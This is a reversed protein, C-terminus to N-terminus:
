RQCNQLPLIADLTERLLVCAWPSLLRRNGAPPCPCLQVNTHQPELGRSMLIHSYPSVSGKSLHNLDCSTVPVSGSRVHSADKYSSRIPVCVVGHPGLSFSTTQVGLLSAEPSVLEASM